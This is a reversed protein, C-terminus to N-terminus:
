NSSAKFIRDVMLETETLDKVIWTPQYPELDETAFTGTLVGIGSVGNERAAEMDAPADGIHFVNRARGQLAGDRDPHFGHHEQSRRIAMGLIENRSLADSGFGGVTFWERIGAAQLKKDAIGALNGTVIGLLAGRRHLAGLLETVGPLVEPKADSMFRDLVQVALELARPMKEWIEADSVGQRTLVCHLIAQDTMGAHPVDDVHGDVVWISAIAQELALKHARNGSALSCAASGLLTGDIDFTVLVKHTREM